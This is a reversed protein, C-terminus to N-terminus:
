CRRLCRRRVAVACPAAFSAANQACVYADVVEAAFDERRKAIDRVIRRQTALLEHMEVVQSSFEAQQARIVERVRLLEDRHTAHLAHTDHLHLHLHSADLDLDTLSGGTNFRTTEVNSDGTLSSPSGEEVLTQAGVVKKGMGATTTAGHLTSPRPCIFPSKTWPGISNATKHVYAHPKPCRLQTTLM